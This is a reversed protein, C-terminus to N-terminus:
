TGPELGPRRVGKYLNPRLHTWALASSTRRLRAIPLSSRPRQTPEAAGISSVRLVHEVGADGALDVLRLHRRILDAVGPSTLLFLLTVRKLAPRLSPEDDFSGEIVDVGRASLRAADYDAHM